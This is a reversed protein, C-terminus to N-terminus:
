VPRRNWAAIALLAAKDSDYRTSEDVQGDGNVEPKNIWVPVTVGRCGTCRVRWGSVMPAHVEDLRAAAGCFPCSNLEFM